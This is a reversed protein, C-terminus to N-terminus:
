GPDFRYVPKRLEGPLSGVAKSHRRAPYASDDLNFAGTVLVRDRGPTCHAQHLQHRAGPNFEANAITETEVRKIWAVVYQRASSVELLHVVTEARCAKKRGVM